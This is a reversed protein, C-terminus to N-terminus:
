EILHPVARFPSEGGFQLLRTIVQGSVLPQHYDGNKEGGKDEGGEEHEAIGTVLHPRTLSVMLKLNLM